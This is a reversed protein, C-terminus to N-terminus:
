SKFWTFFSIMVTMLKRLTNEQPIQYSASNLILPLFVSFIIVDIIQSSVVRCSYSFNLYLFGEVYDLSVASVSVLCSLIGAVIFPANKTARYESSTRVQYRM